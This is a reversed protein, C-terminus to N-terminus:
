KKATTTTDYRLKDNTRRRAHDDVVHQLIGMLFANPLYERTEKPLSHPPPHQSQAGWSQPFPPNAGNCGRGPIPCHIGSDLLCANGEFVDSM